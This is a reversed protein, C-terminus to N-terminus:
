GHVKVKRWLDGLENCWAAWLHKHDGEQSQHYADNMLTELKTSFDAVTLNPEVLPAQTAPIKPDTEESKRVM